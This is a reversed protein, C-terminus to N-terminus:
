WDPVEGLPREWPQHPAGPKQRRLRAARLLGQIETPALPQTQRDDLVVPMRGTGPLANEATGETSPSQDSPRDPRTQSPNGQGPPREVLNELSNAMPDPGNGNRTAQGPKAPAPPCQALRLRIYALTPTFQDGLVSESELALEQAALLAQQDMPVSEGALILARLLQGTHVTDPNSSRRLLREAQRALGARAPDTPPLAETRALLIELTETPDPQTRQACGTIALTVLTLSLAQRALLSPGALFWIWLCLSALLCWTPLHLSPANSFVRAPPEVQLSSGAASAITSLYSPNVTSLVRQERWELWANASLPIPEPNSPSGVQIVQLAVGDSALQAAVRAASDDPIPDDGDSFLLVSRLGPRHALITRALQLGQALRTGSRSDPAPALDPRAAEAPLDGLRELLPAHDFAPPCALRAGAAVTILGAMGPLDAVSQKIQAAALLYRPPKGARMSQSLDLVFLTIPPSAPPSPVLLSALATLVAALAVPWRPPTNQGRIAPVILPDSIDPTSM